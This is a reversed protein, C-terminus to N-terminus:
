GVALWVSRQGLIIALGAFILLVANDTTRNFLVMRHIRLIAMTFAAFAIILTAESNIVRIISGYIAGRVFAFVVLSIAAFTLVQIYKKLDEPRKLVFHAVLPFMFMGYFKRAEGLASQGHLTTYVLAYVVVLGLFLTLFLNDKLFRGVARPRTLACFALYGASIFYALDMPTFLFGAGRFRLPLFQQIVLIIPWLFILFMPNRCFFVLAFVALSMGVALWLDMTLVVILSVAVLAAALPLGPNSNTIKYVLANM